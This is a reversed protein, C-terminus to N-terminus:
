EEYISGRKDVDNLISAREENLRAYMKLVKLEYQAILEDSMSYLVKGTHVVQAQFVTSSQNLDILDVDCNLQSALEQAIMFVKYKDYPGGNQFFAIDIDSESHHTGNVVSGFLYIISPSLKEKLVRVILHEMELSLVIGGDKKNTNYCIKLHTGIGELTADM